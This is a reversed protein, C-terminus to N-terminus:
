KRTILDIISEKVLVIRSFVGPIFVAATGSLVISSGIFKLFLPYGSELYVALAAYIFVVLLGFFLWQFAEAAKHFKDEHFWPSFNLAINIMNRLVIVLFYILILFLVFYHSYSLFFDFIGHLFIASGGFLLMNGAGTGLKLMPHRIYGYAFICTFCLHALVSIYARTDIIPAGYHSFYVINEVTAFGLASCMAYKLVDYPEDVEKTIRVMVLLPIFKTFEELLGVRFIFFLLDHGQDGIVQLQQIPPLSILITLLLTSLAGLGTALLTFKWKEPEFIDLRRLFGLWVFCILLAGITGILNLIM